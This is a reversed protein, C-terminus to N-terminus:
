KEEAQFINSQNKGQPSFFQAQRPPSILDRRM